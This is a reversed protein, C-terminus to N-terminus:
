GEVSKVSSITQAATQSKRAVPRDCRTNMTIIHHGVNVLLLLGVQSLGLLFIVRVIDALGPFEGPIVLPGPDEEQKGHDCFILFIHLMEM